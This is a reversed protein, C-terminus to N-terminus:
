GALPGFFKSHPSRDGSQGAAAQRRTLLTNLARIAAVLRLRGFRQLDACELISPPLATVARTVM